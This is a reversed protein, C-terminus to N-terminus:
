SSKSDARRSPMIAVAERLMGIAMALCKSGCRGGASIASISRAIGRERAMM